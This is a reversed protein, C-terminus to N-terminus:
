VPTRMRGSRLGFLPFRFCVKWMKRIDKVVCCNLNSCQNGKYQDWWPHESSQWTLTIWPLLDPTCTHLPPLFQRKQYWTWCVTERKTFTILTLSLCVHHALDRKEQTLFTTEPSPRAVYCGHSINFICVNENWIHLASFMQFITHLHTSM